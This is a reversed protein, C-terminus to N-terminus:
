FALSGSLARGGGIRYKNIEYQQAAVPIYSRTQRGQLISQQTLPDLRQFELSMPDVNPVPVNQRWQAIEDLLAQSTPTNTGNVIDTISGLGGTAAAPATPQQLTQGTPTTLTGAVPQTTQTPTTPQSLSGGAPAPSPSASSPSTVTSPTATSPVSGATTATSPTAYNFRAFPNTFLAGSINFPNNSGATNFLDTGDAYRQTNRMLAGRVPAPMNRMPIVQAGHPAIVLEEHGTPRGSPSDGTIMTGYAMGGNALGPIVAQPTVMPIPNQINDNALNGAAPTNMWDSPLARQINDNGYPMAPQPAGYGTFGPLYPSMNQSSTGSAQGLADYGVGKTLYPMADTTASAGQWFVNPDGIQQNANMEAPTMTKGTPVGNLVEQYVIGAPTSTPEWGNRTQYQQQYANERQSQAAQNQFDVMQQTDAVAKDAAIQEPTKAAAQNAQTSPLTGSVPTTGPQAGAGGTNTGAPTGLTGGAPIGPAAVQGSNRIQDLLGAARVNALESYFANPDAALRNAITGGANYGNAYLVAQFKAMDTDSVANSFDRLDSARQAKAQQQQQAQFQAINLGYNAQFEADRQARDLANQSATFARADAQMQAQRADAAAALAGADAGGGSSSSSGYSIVSAKPTSQQSTGYGGGSQTVQTELGPAVVFKTGDWIYKGNVLTPAKDTPGGTYPAGNPYVPIGNGYLFGTPSQNTPDRYVGLAWNTTDDLGDNNKDAPNTNTTASPKSIVQISGDYTDQQYVAGPYGTIAGTSDVQTTYRGAQNQIPTNIITTGGSPKTNATSGNWPAGDKYVSQGTSTLTYGTPSAADPYVGWPLGTTPNIGNDESGSDWPLAM